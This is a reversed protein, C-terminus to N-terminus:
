LKKRPFFSYSKIIYKMRIIENIERDFKIIKPPHYGGRNWQKTAKNLREALAAVWRKAISLRRLFLYTECYLAIEFGHANAQPRKKQKTQGPLPRLIQGDSYSSTHYDFWYRDNYSRAEEGEHMSCVSRHSYGLWPSHRIFHYRRYNSKRTTQEYRNEM